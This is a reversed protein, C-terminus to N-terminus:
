PLSALTSWFYDAFGATDVGVAIRCNPEPPDLSHRLDTIMMGRAPGTGTVVEANVDAWTLLEPHTVAAAALPDHLACSRRSLPDGPNMARLLEIWDASCAGAFQWFDRSSARLRHVDDTTLRVKRTVDLGVWRQRAGSALVAQAADPDVWVNFEGPMQKRGTTGLFVGGMVVIERVAQSLGPELALALAVNTLPGIALITIERPNSMVLEVMAGAAPEYWEHAERSEASRLVSLAIDPRNIPAAAGVHIPVDNCGLRRMLHAALTAATGADTNGSVTTIMDVRAEPDAVALALAFGDDIDADVTGMALDTDVILRHM